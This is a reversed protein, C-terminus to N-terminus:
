TRRIRAVSRLLAKPLLLGAWRSQYGASSAYSCSITMLTAARISKDWLSIGVVQDAHHPLPMM